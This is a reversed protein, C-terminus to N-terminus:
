TNTTCLSGCWAERNPMVPLLIYKCACVGALMKHVRTVVGMEFVYACVVLCKAMIYVHTIRVDTEDDIECEILIVYIFVLILRFISSM